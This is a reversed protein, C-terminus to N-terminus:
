PGARRPERWVLSAALEVAGHAAAGYEFGLVFMVRPGCLENRHRIDPM